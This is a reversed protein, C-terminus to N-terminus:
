MYEQLDELPEDFDDSMVIQGAWSGYGYKREAEEESEARVLSRVRDSGDSFPLVELTEPKEPLSLDEESIVETYNAILYKAYHLIELKLPEPMHELVQLIETDVM